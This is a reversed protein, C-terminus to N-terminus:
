YLNFSAKLTELVKGRELKKWEGLVKDGDSRPRPKKMKFQAALKDTYHAVFYKWYSSDYRSSDPM